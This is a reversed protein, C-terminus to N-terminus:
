LNNSYTLTDEWCFDSLCQKCSQSTIPQASSQSRFFSVAPDHKLSSRSLWLPDSQSAQTNSAPLSFLGNSPLPQYSM